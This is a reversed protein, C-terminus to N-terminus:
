VKYELRWFIQFNTKALKKFDSKSKGFKKSILNKMKKGKSKRNSLIILFEFSNTLYYIELNFDNSSKIFILAVYL